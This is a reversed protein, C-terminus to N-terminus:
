QGVFRTPVVVQSTTGSAATWTETTNLTSVTSTTGAKCTFHDAAQTLVTCAVGGMNASITGNGFGWGDVRVVQGGTIYGENQTINYIAPVTKAKYCETNAYNCNNMMVPDHIAYGTEWLM